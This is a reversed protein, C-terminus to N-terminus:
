ASHRNAAVMRKSFSRARGFQIIVMAAALSAGIWTSAEPIPEFNYTTDVGSVGITFADINTNYNDSASSFGSAFRIGGVGASPNVITANPYLTLFESWTIAHDGPGNPDNPFANANPTGSDTYWMGTLANWSQWTNLAVPGQPANPNNNGATASSYVPEFWLRDNFTSGGTTDVYLNLFPLQSGNWSTAYTSYSLSTISSLSTGAWDTNRLQESSDGAGPATMLNASGVGLPPTAPGFVMQGTNAGTNLAGSSDTSYFSWDHMNNPDVTITAASSIGAIACLAFIVAFIKTLKM